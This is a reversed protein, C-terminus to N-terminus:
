VRASAVPRAVDVRLEQVAIDDLHLSAGTLVTARRRRGPRPPRNALQPATAAPAHRDTEIFAPRIKATSPSRSSRPKPWGRRPSRGRKGPLGSTRAAVEPTLTVAAGAQATPKQLCSHWSYARPCGRRADPPRRSVDPRARAGLAGRAGGSRPGNRGHLRGTIISKM